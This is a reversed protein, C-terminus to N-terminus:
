RTRDARESNESRERGGYRQGKARLLSRHDGSTFTPGVYKM